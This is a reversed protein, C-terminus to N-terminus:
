PGLNMLREGRLYDDSNYEATFELQKYEAELISFHSREMSALYQLMSKSNSDRTKEALGGYFEESIREAEMAAGFLEKLGAGKEILEGITPVLSKSPLSLDVEPFKKKYAETLIEKHKLEQAVLFDLKMILDNNKTLEKMRNYLKVAEIESKIAIGLVELTTLDPEPTM